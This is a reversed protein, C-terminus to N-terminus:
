GDYFSTSPSPSAKPVCVHIVDFTFRYWCDTKIATKWLRMFTDVLEFLSQEAISGIRWPSMKTVNNDNKVKLM